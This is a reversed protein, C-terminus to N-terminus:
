IECPILQLSPPIIRVVVVGGWKVGLTVEAWGLCFGQYVQLLGWVKMSIFKVCEGNGYATLEGKGSGGTWRAGSQMLCFESHESM